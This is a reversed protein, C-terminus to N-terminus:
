ANAEGGQTKAPALLRLMGGFRWGAFGGLLGVVAGVAATMFVVPWRVSDAGYVVANQIPMSAGVLLGGIGGALVSVRGASWGRRSLLYIAELLLAIPLLAMPMMSPMAPVGDIYDRMPLGVAGAYTEAAWPSFWWTIAQIVALAAAVLVAGGPRGWFGAGAAVLLVSLLATGVSVVDIGDVDIQELGLVTVTSFAILVGLSGVVGLTGWHHERAAAFVMVTGIISLTISLLLGIHPPSDIVADFGYLGHWWQDWLGYLLFMAAGSGTVLYGAPAAFVKGFVNIARGGVRADVGRGARRAATTMLVVVLSALGSIASGSYLFLHPLTFFTDPGVDGHWQIDWTLGILSIVSGALVTGAPALGTRASRAVSGTRAGGATLDM